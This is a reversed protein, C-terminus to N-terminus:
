RLMGVSTLTLDHSPAWQSTWECTGYQDLLVLTYAIANVATMMITGPNSSNEVIQATGNQRFCVSLGAGAVKLGKLIMLCRGNPSDLDWWIAEPPVVGTFLVLNDPEVGGIYARLTITFDAGPGPSYWDIYGDADTVMAVYNFTPAVQFSTWNIISTQDCDHTEGHERLYTTGLGADRTFSLIVLANSVGCDLSYWGLAPLAGSAIVTEPTPVDPWYALRTITMVEFPANSCWEILGASDTLVFAFITDTNNNFQSSGIGSILGPDGPDGKKKFNLKPGTAVAARTIRLLAICSGVGIDLDRWAGTTVAPGFIIDTTYVTKPYSEALTAFELATEGANVRAGKVAEGVYSAPTDTLGLFAAVAKMLLSM